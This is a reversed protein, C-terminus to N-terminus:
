PMKVYLRDREVGIRLRGSRVTGRDVLLMLHVVLVGAAIRREAVDPLHYLLLLGGSRGGRRQVVHVVLGGVRRRRSLRGAVQGEVVDDGLRRGDEADPDQRRQRGDPEHEVRRDVDPRQDHRRHDDAEHQENIM